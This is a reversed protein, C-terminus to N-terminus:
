IFVCGRKRGGATVWQTCPKHRDRHRMHLLGHLLVLVRWCMCVRVRIVSGRVLMGCVVPWECLSKLIFITGCLLRVCGWVFVAHPASQNATFSDPHYDASLCRIQKHQRYDWWITQNYTLTSASHPLNNSLLSIMFGGADWCSPWFVTNHATCLIPVDGSRRSLDGNLTKTLARRVRCQFIYSVTINWAAEESFAKFSLRYSHSSSVPNIYTM